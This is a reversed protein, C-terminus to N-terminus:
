CKWGSRHQGETPGAVLGDGQPLQHDAEEVRVDGWAQLQEHQEEDIMNVPAGEARGPDGPKRAGGDEVGRHQVIRKERQSSQISSPSYKLPLSVARRDLKRCRVCLELLLTGLIAGQGPGQRM